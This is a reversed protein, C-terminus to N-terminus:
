LQHSIYTIFLAIPVAIALLVAMVALHRILESQINDM